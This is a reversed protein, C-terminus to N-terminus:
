PHRARQRRRRDRAPAATGPYKGSPTRRAAARRSRGAADRRCCRKRAGRAGHRGSRNARRTSPQQWTSSRQTPPKAAARQRRSRCPLLRRVPSGSCASAAPSPMHSSALRNGSAPRWRRNSRESRPVLGQDALDRLWHRYRAANGAFRALGAASDIAGLAPWAPMGQSGTAPPLADMATAAQRQKHVPIWKALTRYFTPHDFPKGIFDSMGAARQLGKEHEMIHATMAIIPLAEFGARSRLERTASYGDMVPMQIDMLVLDFASAGSMRLRDVAEQGNSAMVPTIGVAGLLAEVIERNLPHDDVVLVRAGHYAEPLPQWRRRHL